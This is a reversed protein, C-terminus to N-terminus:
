IIPIEIFAVNRSGTVKRTSSKFFRYTPSDHDFGVLREESAKEILREGHQQQHVFARTGITLLNAFSEDEVFLRHCPTEMGLTNNSIRKLLHVATAAIKALLFRPEKAENLLCHTVSMVTQGDLEYKGIQSPM